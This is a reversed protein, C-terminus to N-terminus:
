CMLYWSESNRVSGVYEAHSVSEEILYNFLCKLNILVNENVRDTLM